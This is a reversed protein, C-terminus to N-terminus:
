DHKEIIANASVVMFIGCHVVAQFLYVGTLAGWMFTAFATLGAKDILFSLFYFLATPLCIIASMWVGGAIITTTKQSAITLTNRLADFVMSYNGPVVSRASAVQYFLMFLLMGASFPLTLAITLVVGMFGSFMANWGIEVIDKMDIMPTSAEGNDRNPQFGQQNGVDNRQNPQRNNQPVEDQRNQEQGRNNKQQKAPNKLEKPRDQNAQNRENVDQRKFENDGMDFDNNNNANDNQKQKKIQKKQNDGDSHNPQFRDALDVWASSVATGAILLFGAALAAPAIAMAMLLIVSAQMMLLHWLSDWGHQLFSIYEAVSEKEKKCSSDVCRIYGLVFAPVLIMTFIPLSALVCAIMLVIALIMHRYPKSRFENLAIMGNALTANVFGSSPKQTVRRKKVPIEAKSDEALIEEIVVLESEETVTSDVPVQQVPIIKPQVVATKEESRFVLGKLQSAFLPDTMGDRIVTENAHLKGELAMKRLADPLFPGLRKGNRLIYWNM